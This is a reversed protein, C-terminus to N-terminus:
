RWRALVRDGHPAEHDLRARLEPPLAAMDAASLVVWATRGAPLADLRPVARAQGASYFDASFPKHGIFYLAEGPAAARQFAMVLPRASLGDFRQGAHGAALLGALLLASSVLGLTLVGEVLRGRRRSATWRGVLLALAPLGPLVYTWLVNGAATFFLCPMLAWALLLSSEGAQAAPAGIAQADRGLLGRWAALPLLLSWPLVAVAAFVWISGRPFSHASGYLDGSWGATVFRQWHEGVIFYRLFGPTRSEALLYWPVTLALVLLSGRLWAVRQWARPLRGAFLAWGLLPLGWLVLSVPGKSLLGVAAGLAMLTSAGRATGRDAATARWARCFGVMVMTNGLAMAMDTMVAGSAVFFLASGTLLAATHWAARPSTTRAHWAVLAVVGAGLLCHPLRAGWEGVGMVTYGLQTAWFSLPPKGWFPVGEAFWPTVWDGMALMRRAIEAYRAETNDMLPYLPLTVLRVVVLLGLAYVLGRGAQPGAGAHQATGPAARAPHGRTV